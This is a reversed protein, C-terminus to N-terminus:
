LCVPLVCHVYMTDLKTPFGFVKVFVLLCCEENQLKEVHIARNIHQKM